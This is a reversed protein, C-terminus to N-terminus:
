PHSHGDHSQASDAPAVVGRIRELNERALNVAPGDGGIEIVKEWEVKAEHYLNADAFLVGLNFHADANNPDLELAKALASKAEYTKKQQFYLLSGLNIYPLPDNPAIEIARRYEAEAQAHKGLDELVLGHHVLAKVNEADSALVHEFAAAASDPKGSAQWALGLQFWAEPDNPAKALAAQARALEAAPDPAPSKADASSSSAGASSVTKPPACAALL